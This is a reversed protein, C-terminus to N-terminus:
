TSYVQVCHMKNDPAWLAFSSGHLGVPSLCMLSITFGSLAFCVSKISILDASHSYQWLDFVLSSLTAAPQEQGTYTHATRAQALQCTWSLSCRALVGWAPIYKILIIM